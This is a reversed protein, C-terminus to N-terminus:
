LPFKTYISYIRYPQPTKFHQSKPTFFLFLLTMGEDVKDGTVMSVCYNKWNMLRAMHRNMDATQAFYIKLYFFMAVMWISKVFDM